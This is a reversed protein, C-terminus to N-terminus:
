IPHQDRVTVMKVPIANCTVAQGCPVCFKVPSNMEKFVPQKSSFRRFFHPLFFFTLDPHSLQPLRPSTIGSDLTVVCEKM